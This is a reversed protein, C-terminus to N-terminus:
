TVASGSAIHQIANWASHPLHGFMRILLVCVCVLICGGRDVAQCDVAPNWSPDIVVVRSAGILSLGLGGVTTTLLCTDISGAACMHCLQHNPSLVLRVSYEGCCM